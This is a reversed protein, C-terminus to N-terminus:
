PINSIIPSVDAYGISATGTFTIDKLGSVASLHFEGPKSGDINGKVILARKILSDLTLDNYHMGVLGLAFDMSKKNLITASSVGLKAKSLVKIHDTESHGILFESATFIEVTNGLGATLLNEVFSAVKEQTNTTSPFVLLTSIQFSNAGGVLKLDKMQTQVVEADELSVMASVYGISVSVPFPINFSAGLKAQVSQGPLTLMEVGQLQVGFKDLLGFLDLSASVSRIIPGMFRDISLSIIIEQFANITDASSTGVAVGSVVINGPISATKANLVSESLLALKDALAGSEHIFLNTSLDLSNVGDGAINFGVVQTEVALVADLSAKVTFYPVQARIRFPFDLTAKVGVGIVSNSNFAVDAHNLTISLGHALPIKIGNKNEGLISKGLAPLNAIFENIYKTGLELIPKVIPDLALSVSIDRFCQIADESDVGLVIGAVGARASIVGNDMYLKFISNLKESLEKTDQVNLLGSDLQFDKNENYKIGSLSCLVANVEDLLFKAIGIYGISLTVPFPLPLNINANLGVGAQKNPLVSFSVYNILPILVFIIYSSYLMGLM